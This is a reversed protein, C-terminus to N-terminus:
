ITSSASHWRHSWRVSADWQGDNEEFFSSAARLSEPASVTATAATTVTSLSLLLTAVTRWM